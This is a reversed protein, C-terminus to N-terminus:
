YRWSRAKDKMRELLNKQEAAMQGTLMVQELYGRVKRNSVLLCRIYKARDDSLEAMALQGILAQEIHNFAEKYVRNQLVTQAEFGRAEDQDLDM